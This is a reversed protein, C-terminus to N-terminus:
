ARAPRALTAQLDDIVDELSDFRERLRGVNVGCGRYHRTWPAADTGRLKHETQTLQAVMASQRQAM